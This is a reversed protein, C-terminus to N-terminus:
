KVSASSASNKPDVISKLPESNEVKNDQEKEDSETIFKLLIALFLNLLMYNGIITCIIFYICPSYSEQSMIVQVMIENWNEGTLVIYITILSDATSRFSYRSLNGNEDKLEESYFQKGLLGAIFLFLITLVGLNTIAGISELM